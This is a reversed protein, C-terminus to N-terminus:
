YYVYYLHLEDEIIKELLWEKSKYYKNTNTKIFQKTITNIHDIFITNELESHIRPNLYSIENFIKDTIKYM